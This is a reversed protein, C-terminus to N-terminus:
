VLCGVTQNKQCSPYQFTKNREEILSNCDSRIECKLMMLIESQCALISIRKLNQLKEYDALNCSSMHKNPQTLLKEKILTMMWLLGADMICVKDYIKAALMMPDQSTHRSRHENGQGGMQKTRKLSISSYPWEAPPPPLCNWLFYALSQGLNSCGHDGVRQM